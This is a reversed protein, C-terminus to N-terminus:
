EATQMPLGMFDFYEVEFDTSPTGQYEDPLMSFVVVDKFEGRNLTSRRLTGERHYGLRVPIEMSGANDPQVRIEMREAKLIEVGARTALAAVETGLGCRLHDRDVWYGVELCSTGSRPHLGVGAVLKAEDASFVGYIFATGLDFSGRFGRIISAKEATTQPDHVAWPLWPLFHDRNRASVVRLAEADGPEWCRLCLRSSLIRYPPSPWTSHM